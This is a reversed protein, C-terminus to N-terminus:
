IDSLRKYEQLREVMKDIFERPAYRLLKVIQISREDAFLAGLMDTTDIVEDISMLRMSGSGSELWDMSVNEEHAIKRFVDTPVNGRKKWGSITNKDKGLKDGVAKDTHVHYVQKMREIQDLVRQKQNEDM